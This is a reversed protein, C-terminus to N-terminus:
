AGGPASIPMPTSWTRGLETYGGQYVDSLTSGGPFTVFDSGSFAVRSRYEGTIDARFWNNFQYGVGVGYSTGGTFGEGNQTLARAPGALHRLSQRAAQRESNTMGIDGRLYWGGFDQAAAACLIAPAAAHDLCTPRSRRRRCCPRREPPLSFSLAVCQSRGKTRHPLCRLGWM